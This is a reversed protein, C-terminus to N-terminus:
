LLVVIIYNVDDLHPFTLWLILWGRFVDFIFHERMEVDFGFIQLLPNFLIDKPDDRIDFIFQELIKMAFVGGGVLCFSICVTGPSVSAATFM